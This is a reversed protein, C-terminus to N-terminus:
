VKVQESSKSTQEAEGGMYYALARPPGIPLANCAWAPKERNRSEAMKKLWGGCARRLVSGSVAQM